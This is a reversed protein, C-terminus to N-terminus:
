DDCGLGPVVPAPSSISIGALTWEESGSLTWDMPVSPAGAKTSGAGLRGTPPTGANPRTADPTATLFQYRRVVHRAGPRRALENDDRETLQQGHQRRASWHGAHGPRGRQVNVGWRYRERPADFTALVTANGVPPNGLYWLEITHSSTGTYRGALTLPSGGYTVTSSQGLEMSLGVFLVRESGAFVEHSWSLNPALGATTNSTSAGNSTVAALSPLSLLCMLATIAVIRLMSLRSKLAQVIM